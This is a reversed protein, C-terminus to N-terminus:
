VKENELRYRDVEVVMSALRPHQHALTLTTWAADAYSPWDDPQIRIATNSDAFDPLPQLDEDLCVVPHPFDAKDLKVQKTKLVDHLDDTGLPKGGGLGWLTVELGTRWWRPGRFDHLLGTYNAPALLKGLKGTLAESVSTPTAGLRAALWHADLLFSPYPLVRQLLWRLFLLGHIRQVLEDLPPVAREVEGWAQDTWAVSEDLGLLKRAAGRTKSPNNPPWSAPLSQVAEALKKVLGYTEVKDPGTDKEFAWDVNCSRSLLHIRPELKFPATLEPLHASHIAFAVAHSNATTRQQLIAALPLGNPIHQCLNEAAANEVWQDLNYDVLVLHAEKLDSLKVKSPGRVKFCASLFPPFGDIMSQQSAPTDDVILINPPRKKAVPIRM